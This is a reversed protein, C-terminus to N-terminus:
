VKLHAGAHAKAEEGQRPENKTEDDEGEPDDPADAHFYHLVQVEPAIFLEFLVVELASEEDHEEDEM